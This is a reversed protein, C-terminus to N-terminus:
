RRWPISRSFIVGPPFPFGGPTQRQPHCPQRRLVCSAGGRQARARSDAAKAPGEVPLPLLPFFFPRRGSPLPGCRSLVRGRCVCPPACWRAQQEMRAWSTRLGKPAVLAAPVMSVAGPLPVESVRGSIKLGHGRHGRGPGSSTFVAKALECLCGQRPGLGPLSLHNNGFLFVGRRTTM